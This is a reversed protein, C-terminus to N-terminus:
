PLLRTDMEEFENTLGVADMGGGPKRGLEVPGLLLVVLAFRFTFVFAFIVAGTGAFCGGAATELEISSSRDSGDDPNGGIVLSTFGSPSIRAVAFANTGDM